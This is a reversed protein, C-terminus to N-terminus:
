LQLPHAPASFSWYLLSGGFWTLLLGGGILLTASALGILNASGHRSAFQGIQDRALITVIALLSIAIATGSSMALVAFFGLATQGIASAFVLVLIAGTCPRLGMSLIVLAMAGLGQRSKEVQAADAVHHHDCCGDHHHHQHEDGHHHHPSAKALSGRLSRGGRLLLWLGLCLVLAFSVRESWDVALDTYGVLSGVVLVVGYVLIIATAGQVMAGLSALLVGRALWAPQTALYTTIIVKGHGPGAAHFLGYLFSLGVVWWAAAPDGSVQQFGAILREHLDRQAEFVTLILDQWM